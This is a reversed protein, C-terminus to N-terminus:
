ATLHGVYFDTCEEAPWSIGLVFRQQAQDAGRDEIRLRDARVVFRRGHLPFPRIRLQVLQAVHEHAAERDLLDRTKQAPIVVVDLVFDDFYAPGATLQSQPWRTPVAGPEGHDRCKTARGPRGHLPFGPPGTVEDSIGTQWDYAEHGTLFIWPGAVDLVMGHQGKCRETHHPVAATPTLIM